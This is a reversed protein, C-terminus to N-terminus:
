RKKKKKQPRLEWGTFIRALGNGEQFVLRLRRGRDTRGDLIYVDNFRDDECYDYERFFM